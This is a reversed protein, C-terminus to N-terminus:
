HEKVVRDVLAPHVHTDDVRALQREILVDRGLQPREEGLHDEVLAVAGLDLSEDLVGLLFLFAEVVELLGAGRADLFLLLDLLPPSPGDLLAEFM